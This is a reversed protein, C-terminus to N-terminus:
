PQTINWQIIYSRKKKKKRWSFSNVIKNKCKVICIFIAKKKTESSGELVIRKQYSSPTFRGPRATLFCGSDCYCSRRTFYFLYGVSLSGERRVQRTWANRALHAGDHPPHPTADSPAWADNAHAREHTAGNWSCTGSADDWSTSPGYSADHFPGMHPAPRMGPHPPRSSEPSTPGSGMCPSSCLISYSADKRASSSHNQWDPESCVRGDM